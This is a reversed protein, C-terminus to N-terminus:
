DKNLEYWTGSGTNLLQCTNVWKIRYCYTPGITLLKNGLHPLESLLCQIIQGTNPSPIPNPQFEPLQVLMQATVLTRKAAKRMRPYCQRGPSKFWTLFFATTLCTPFYLLSFCVLRLQQLPFAMSSAALFFLSLSEGGWHEWKMRSQATVVCSVAMETKVARLDKLKLCPHIFMKEGIAMRRCTIWPRERHSLEVKAQPLLFYSERFDSQSKHTGETM